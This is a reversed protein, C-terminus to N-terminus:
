YRAATSNGDGAGPYPHTTGLFGGRGGERGGEERGRGVRGPGSVTVWPPLTCPTAMLLLLDGEWGVWCVAVRERVSLMTLLWSTRNVAEVEIDFSTKCDLM